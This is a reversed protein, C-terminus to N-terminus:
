SFQYYNMYVSIGMKYHQKALKAALDPDKLGGLIIRPIRMKCLDAFIVRDGPVRM